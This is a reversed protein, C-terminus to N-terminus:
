VDDDDECSAEVQRYVENKCNPCVNIMHAWMDSMEHGCTKCTVRAM